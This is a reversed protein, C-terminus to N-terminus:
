LKGAILAESEPLSLVPSYYFGQMMDCGMSQLTKQQAETEIGECITLAGTNHVLALIDRLMKRRRPSFCQATFSREIKVVDIDNDYLDALSSFGTGMDDLAIRFGNERCRRINESTQQPNNTLTDETIELILRRHDFRFNAAIALIRDAFDPASVSIRTFNCSLFLRDFPAANWRELLRCVQAFIHFDHSVIDGSEKLLGIYEGPQLLGYEPNQWRSLVEAGCFVSRRCDLIFQLHLKFEGNELAKHLSAQLKQKRQAAANEPRDSEDPQATEAALRVCYADGEAQVTVLSAEPSADDISLRWQEGRPEASVCVFRRGTEAATQELRRTLAEWEDISILLKKEEGLTQKLIM